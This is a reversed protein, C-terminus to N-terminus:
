NGEPEIRTQSGQPWMCPAPGEGRTWREIRYRGSKYFVRMEEATTLGSAIQGGAIRNLSNVTTMKLADYESFGAKTLQAVTEARTM